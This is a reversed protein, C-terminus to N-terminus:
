RYLDVDAKAVRGFWHLPDDFLRRHHFGGPWLARIAAGDALGGAAAIVRHGCMCWLPTSISAKRMRLRTTCWPDM